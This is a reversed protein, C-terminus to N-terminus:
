KEDILKYMLMEATNNFLWFENSFWVPQYTKEVIWCWRDFLKDTAMLQGSTYSLQEGHAIPCGSIEMGEKLFPFQETKWSEGEFRKTYNGWWTNFDELTKGQKILLVGEMNDAALSGGILNSYKSIKGDWVVGYDEQNPKCVEMWVSIHFMMACPNEIYLVPILQEGTTFLHAPFDYGFNWKYFMYSNQVQAGISYTPPNTFIPTGITGYQGQGIISSHGMMTNQGLSPGIMNQSNIGTQQPPFLQNQGQTTIGSWPTTSNAAATNTTINTNM